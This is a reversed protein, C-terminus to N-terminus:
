PGGLALRVIAVIIVFAAIAGAVLGAVDSGLASGVVAWVAVLIVPTAALLLAAVSCGLCGDVGGSAERDDSVSM